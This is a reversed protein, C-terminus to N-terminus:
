NFCHTYTHRHGLTRFAAARIRKATLFAAEAAHKASHAQFQRINFFVLTIDFYQECGRFCIIVKFLVPLAEHVHAESRFLMSNHDGEVRGILSVTRPTNKKESPCM